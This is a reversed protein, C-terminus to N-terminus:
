TDTVNAEAEDISRHLEQMGQYLLIVALVLVLVAFYLWDGRPTKRRM